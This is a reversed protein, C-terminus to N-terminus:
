QKENRMEEMDFKSGLVKIYTDSDIKKIESFSLNGEYYKAMDMNPVIVFSGQEYIVEGTFIPFTGVYVIDHEYIEKGRGDKLGTFECVTSPDVKHPHNRNLMSKSQRDEIIYTNDCEKYFYGKVWEGTDTRKGKFIIKRQEM